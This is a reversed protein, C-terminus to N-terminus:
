ALGRRVEPKAPYIRGLTDVNFKHLAVATKVGVGRILGEKGIAASRDHSWVNIAGSSRDAGAYYGFITNKKLEVRLLDNPYLSFLFAFSEDVVTWEAEPKAAVIARNPLGTVRHHVYVPVVHFKGDKTFVDVRLMSDNKAVGGRIPIGTLKKRLLKVSRVIPGTPAGNADPKHFPKDPGFAKEANGGHAQLRERIATYLRENRRWDVLNDLDALTLKQLSVKEIVSEQEKLAPPRSYITEKHAAGSSRKQVARSVFLTRLGALDDSSYSGLRQMDERLAQLDDTNLRALLEHRFHPWPQPFHRNIQDFAGPNHVEGTEPDPFGQQVLALENTRSYDALRKVMSRTCAAVVAADLAHHRDSGKRDKALGWRARLFATLQGSAVVCTKDGGDAMRLNSEVFNKFFRCIYRTDILNREIFESADLKSYNKRLLRNRKAMRFNKNAQVWAAFARWREGEQGGDLWTLYEYPTRNGKNQNELTLVLVKNNKSDDFSRSFPLAHDVQAYNQERLLRQLDLPRQSYACQGHQERYLLWKEMDASRPTYGFEQVFDERASDNRDRFAEQLKQIKRREDLPRSLDRALEIHVSTPSGYERVLENLVKRAQNLARLVVPNRPVDIDDRLQRSGRRDSKDRYSRGDQYLSPLYKSKEEHPKAFHSHHGYEPIRAVAEDYRLGQQMLPVIRRLAKLSLNSFGAFSLRELVAISQEADPLPLQRLQYNIEQGDKYISLVQAIEDLLHADADLAPTSIRQWLELANAKTFAKRMEHWASLKVLTQEEPDKVKGSEAHACSPYPLGGFRVGEPLLGQKILAKKLTTYRVNETTYPLLMVAARESADLPRSVGDVIVRVNNLRTLWVHREATFSAKPARYEEREFTCRGLMALVDEGSLAPSQQWFIGSRQDGSGLIHAQFAESAHPNGFGRQAAFLAQLEEGLLVRSIAKEYSGGKNRQAKPYEALMMQAVTRYGKEHMLAATGRLAQKLVGGEADNDAQAEQAKSAWHFGRHKCLHYIVRAWELPTLLRDLGQSRLSWASDAFGPSRAFLRGDDILGERKLLRGLQKLRWARHFLRRRTLRAIRRQANLSEGDTTEAREFCRVGLDIIRTDSIVAWGVSAIGIDLGFIRLTM